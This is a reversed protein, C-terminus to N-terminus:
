AWNKKILKLRFASEMTVISVLNYGLGLGMTGIFGFKVRFGSVMTGILVLVPAVSSVSFVELFPTPPSVM